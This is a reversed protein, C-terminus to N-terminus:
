STLLAIGDIVLGEATVDMLYAVDHAVVLRRTAGYPDGLQVITSAASRGAPDVHVLVFQVTNGTSDPPVITSNLLWVDGDDAVTLDMLGGPAGAFAIDISGTGAGLSVTGDEALATSLWTVPPRDILLAATAVNVFPYYRNNIAAYVTDDVDNWVLPSNVPTNAPITAPGAVQVTGSDLDVLFAATAPRGIVFADVVAIGRDGAMVIDAVFYPDGDAPLEITRTTADGTVVVVRRNVTDLVVMDGNRPDVAFSTPGASEMDGEAPTYGVQGESDGEGDGFPLTVVRQRSVETVTPTIPPGGGVVPVVLAESALGTTEDLVTLSLAASGTPAAIGATWWGSSPDFTAAATTSGDVQVAITADAATDPLVFSIPVTSGTVVFPLAWALHAALTTGVTNPASAVTTSGADTIPPAAATTTPAVSTPTAAPGSSCGSAIAGALLVGILVGHRTRRQAM